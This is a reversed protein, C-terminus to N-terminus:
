SESEVPTFGADKAHRFFHDKDMRGMVSGNKLVIYAYKTKVEITLRGDTWKTM